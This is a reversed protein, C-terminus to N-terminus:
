CIRKNTLMRINKHLLTLLNSVSVAAYESYAGHDSRLNVGQFLGNGKNFVLPDRRAGSRVFVLM